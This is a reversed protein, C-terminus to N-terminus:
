VGYPRTGSGSCSDCMVCQQCSICDGLCMIRGCQNGGALGKGDCMKCAIVERAGKCRACTVSKHRGPCCCYAEHPHVACLRWVGRGYCSSCEHPM